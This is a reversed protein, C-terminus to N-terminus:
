PNFNFSEQAKAAIAKTFFEARAKCPKGEAFYNFAKSSVCFKLPGQGYVTRKGKVEARYAFEGRLFNRDICQGAILQDWGRVRFRPEGEKFRAVLALFITDSRKNCFTVISFPSPLKLPTFREVENEPVKCGHGDFIQGFRCCVRPEEVGRWCVDGNSCAGGEACCSRAEKIEYCIGDSCKIGGNPCEQAPATYTEAAQCDTTDTGPDCANKDCTGDKAFECSDPGVTLPKDDSASSQSPPNFYCRNHGSGRDKIWEVYGPLRECRARSVEYYDAAGTDKDTFTCKGAYNPSYDGDGVKPTYAESYVSSCDDAKAKEFSLFFSVVVIAILSVIYSGTPFFIVVRRLVEDDM